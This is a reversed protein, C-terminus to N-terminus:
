ARFYTAADDPTAQIEGLCGAAAPHKEKESHAANRTADRPHKM